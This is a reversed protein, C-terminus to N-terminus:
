MSSSRSLKQDVRLIEMTTHKQDLGLIELRISESM